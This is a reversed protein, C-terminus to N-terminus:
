IAIIIIIVCKMKFFVEYKHLTCNLIFKTQHIIYKCKIIVKECFGIKKM